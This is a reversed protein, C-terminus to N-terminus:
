IAFHATNKKITVNKQEYINYCSVPIKYVPKYKRLEAEIKGKGELDIILLRGKM